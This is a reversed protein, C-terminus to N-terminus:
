SLILRNEGNFFLSAFMTRINCIKTKRSLKAIRLAPQIPKNLLYVESSYLYIRIIRRPNNVMQLKKRNAMRRSKKYRNTVM